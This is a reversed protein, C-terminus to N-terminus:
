LEFIYKGCAVQQGKSNTTTKPVEYTKDYIHNRIDTPRERLVVVEFEFHTPTKPKSLKNLYEKCISIEQDIMLNTEVIGKLLGNEILAILNKFPTLNNRESERAKNYGHKFGNELVELANSNPIKELSNVENVFLKDVLEEEDEEIPPLLPVGELISVTRNITIFGDAMDAFKECGSLFDSSTDACNNQVPILLPLHAIIKKHWERPNWDPASQEIRKDDTLFWDGVKIESDDVVLLYNDTKILEKEM